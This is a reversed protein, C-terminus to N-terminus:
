FKAANESGTPIFNVLIEAKAKKLEEVIDCPEYKDAVDFFERLHPPAGDLIPGMKVEVGQKPVEAFKTMNNPKTFIAESLDKGIKNKDIDFAAVYKINRIKYDGLVPHMLGPISKSNDEVDNYKYVGQVLHGTCCGIGAIAVRIEKEAM